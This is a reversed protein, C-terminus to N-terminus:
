QILKEQMFYENLYNVKHIAVGCQVLVKKNEESLMNNETLCINVKQQKLVSVRLPEDKNFDVCKGGGGKVLKGFQAAKTGSSAIIFTKGTFAGEAFREPFDETIWKRWKFPAQCIGDKQTVKSLTAAAFSPNGFEFEDEDIFHGEDYCHNIYSSHLIFLGQSLALM